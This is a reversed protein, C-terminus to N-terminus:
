ITEDATYAKAKALAAALQCYASHTKAVADSYEQCCPCTGNPGIWEVYKLAAVLEPFCEARRHLEARRQWDADWKQSAKAQREAKISPSHQKCWHKGEEECKGNRSCRTLHWGTDDMFTAECRYKTISM